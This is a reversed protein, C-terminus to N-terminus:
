QRYDNANPACCTCGVKEKLRLRHASFWCVFHRLGNNALPLTQLFFFGVNNIVDFPDATTGVRKAVKGGPNFV